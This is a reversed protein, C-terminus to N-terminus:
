SCAIWLWVEQTQIGAEGCLLRMIRALSNVVRHGWKRKQLILTVVESPQKNHPDCTNASPVLDPM